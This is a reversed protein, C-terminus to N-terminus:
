ENNAKETSSGSASDKRSADRETNAISEGDGDPSGNVIRLKEKPVTFMVQVVRREVASEVDWEEDNADTSSAGGLDETGRGYTDVDWDRAGQRTRWLMGGTSAARRPVGAESDHYKIPSSSTSRDGRDPSVSTGRDGILARRMSNMWSKGRSQIQTPSRPGAASYGALLSDREALPQSVLITPTMDSSPNTQPRTTGLAFSQSRRRYPDLEPSSNRATTLEADRLPGQNGSGFQMANLLNASRQSVSRSLTGLSRPNSHASITSFTSRESLTSSTRDAKDPSTRGAQQHMLTDAASWDTVWNQVELERERAPSQPSPSRSDTIPHGNLPLPDCFPDLEPDTPPLQVNPYQRKEPDLSPAHEILDEDYEDREDIPHIHGSGRSRRSDDYWPGQQYAGRSHISRRLGRTPSPIEVFLGTREADAGHVSRWYADDALQPAWPYADRTQQNRDGMCQVASKEGGRGDIGAGLGVGLSHFRQAGLALDSLEKDRAKRRRRSKRMYCFYVFLAGLVLALGLGIGTGLGINRSSSSAIFPPTIGSGGSGSGQTTPNTYTSTWSSSTINYFSYPLTTGSGTRKTKTSGVGVIPYGGIVMMVDGPLMVAGHGYVGSGNTPGTGIQDPILWQWDGRGGFGEGLQLIALQPDAPTTVDGVWGGYVVIHQGDSTLLSTHGSRPDVNQNDRGKLSRKAQSTPASVPLFAWSQEPLSFLAVQSMNIFADQTHGGLWVFNQQQSTNGGSSNFFTPELPTITFGAEPIPSSTTQLVNAEYEPISPTMSYSSVPTFQLLANSYNALSQWNGFTTNAITPCMGGFLYIDSSTNVTASFTMGSALFNTASISELGEQGMWSMTEKTWAGKASGDGQIYTWLTSGISSRSCDGAYIYISGEDDILSTYPIDNAWPLPQTITTTSINAADVVGTISLAVLSGGDDPLVLYVLGSENKKSPFASVPNYPLSAM